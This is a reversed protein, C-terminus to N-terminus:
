GVVYDVEADKSILEIRVGAPACVIVQGSKKLVGSNQCIKDKCDSKVVYVGDQDIHVVLHYGQSYVDIDQTKNLLFINEKNDNTIKVAMADDRFVQPLFMLIVALLVVGIIATTDFISWKTRM